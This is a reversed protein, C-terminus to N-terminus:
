YLEESLIILQGLIAGHFFEFDNGYVQFWSENLTESFHYLIMYNLNCQGNNSIKEHNQKQAKILILIM